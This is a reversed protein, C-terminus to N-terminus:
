YKWYMKEKSVQPKWEGHTPQLPKEAMTSKEERLDFVEEFRNREKENQREEHSTKERQTKSM